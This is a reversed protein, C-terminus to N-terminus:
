RLWSGTLIRWGGCAWLFLVLWSVVIVWGTVIAAIGLIWDMVHSQHAARAEEKTPVATRGSVVVPTPQVIRQEM